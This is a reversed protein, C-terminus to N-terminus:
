GVLSQMVSLMEETTQARVPTKQGLVQKLPPMKKSRQYAAGHWAARM